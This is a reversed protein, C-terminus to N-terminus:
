DGRESGGREDLKNMLRRVWKLVITGIKLVMLVVDM